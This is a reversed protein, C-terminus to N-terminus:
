VWHDRWATIQQWAEPTCWNPCGAHGLLDFFFKEADEEVAERSEGAKVRQSYAEHQKRALRLAEQGAHRRVLEALKTYFAHLAPGADGPIICYHELARAFRKHKQEWSMKVDLAATVHQGVKHSARAHRDGAAEAEKVHKLYFAEAHGIVPLPHFHGRPHLSHPAVAAHPPHAAHETAAHGTHPAHSM